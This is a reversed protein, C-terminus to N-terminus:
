LSNTATIAPTEVVEEVKDNKVATDGMFGLSIKRKPSSQGEKITDTTEANKVAGESSANTDDLNVVVTADTTSKSVEAEIVVGEAENANKSTEVEVEVAVQDGEPANISSEITSSQTSASNLSVETETTSVEVKTTEEVTKEVNEAVDAENNNNSINNAPVVPDVTKKEAANEVNVSSKEDAKVPEPLLSSIASHSNTNTNVDITINPNDNNYISDAANNDAGDGMILQRLDRAVARRYLFTLGLSMMSFATGALIAVKAAIVAAEASLGLAAFLGFGGPAAGVAILGVAVLAVLVIAAKFFFRNPMVPAQASASSSSSTPIAQNALLSDNETPVVNSNEQAKAAEVKTADNAAEIITAENAAAEVNAAKKAQEVADNNANENAKAVQENQADNAKQQDQNAVINDAQQQQAEVNNDQQQQNVDANAAVVDNAAVPQANESHKPSTM